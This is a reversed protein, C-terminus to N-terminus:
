DQLDQGTIIKHRKIKKRVNDNRPDLQLSKKWQQLAEKVIGKKFYADGLHNRIVADDKKRGVSLEVARKLETLSKDLMGKKFYAWGLSDVIYGSEPKIELAKKILAISEDLNIGKEAYIYGLYNLAEVNKPNLAIAKKMESIAEEIKGQRELNAGLCFRVMDNDTGQRLYERYTSVAKDYDGKETYALGLLLYFARQIEKRYDGSLTKPSLYLDPEQVALERGKELIKIGGRILNRKLYLQGLQLYAEIAKPNLEIVKELKARSKEIQGTSDYIAALFLHLPINKEPDGSRFELLSEYQKAAEELKGHQRYMRGLWLYDKILRDAVSSSHPNFRLAERYEKIAEEFEGQKDYILGMLYHAYVRADIVELKPRPISKAPKVAVRACGAILLPITLILVISKKM